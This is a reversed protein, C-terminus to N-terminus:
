DSSTRSPSAPSGELLSELCESLAAVLPQPAATGLDHGANALAVCHRMGPWDRARAVQDAPTLEDLDGVIMALPLDLTAAFGLDRVALPPALLLLADPGPRAEAELAAALAVAAGFSYGAWLVPSRAAAPVETEEVTGEGVLWRHAAILDGVEGRGEDHAGASRGVGRFNFRLTTLGRRWCADACHRVVANQMTGGYLPHPHAVVAGGRM